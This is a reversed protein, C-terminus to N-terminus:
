GAAESSLLPIHAMSVATTPLFRKKLIKAKIPLLEKDHEAKLM